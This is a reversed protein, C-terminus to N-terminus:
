DVDLLRHRKVSGLAPIESAATSVIGPFQHQEVCRLAVLLAPAMSVIAPIRAM